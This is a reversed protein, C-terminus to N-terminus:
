HSDLMVAHLRSRIPTAHLARYISESMEANVVYSRRAGNANRGSVHLRLYGDVEQLSGQVWQEVTEDGPEAYQDRASLGGWTHNNLVATMQDAMTIGLMTPRRHDFEWLFPFPEVRILTPSFFGDFQSGADKCIMAILEPLSAYNRFSADAQNGPAEEAYPTPPALLFLLAASLALVLRRLQDM